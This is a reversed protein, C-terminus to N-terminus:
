IKKIRFRGLELVIISHIFMNASIENLFDDFVKIVKDSKYYYPLRVLVLGLGGSKTFIDGFGLDRTVIIYGFKQAHEFIEEDTAHRLINNVHIAEHGYKRLIEVISYPSDADILFKM